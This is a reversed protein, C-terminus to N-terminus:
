TGKRRTPEGEGGGEGGRCGKWTNDNGKSTQPTTGCVGVGSSLIQLKACVCVYTILMM